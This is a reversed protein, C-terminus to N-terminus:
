IQERCNFEEQCNPCTVMKPALQDLQGQDEQSGPQFGPPIIGHEEALKTLMDALDQNSTQVENMLAELQAKDAEAMAGIPDYTLLIKNAEDENVDLILVPVTENKLLDTRLHGDILQISGDALEYAILAGAVGVEDLIAQMAKTQQKSHTRWNKPNAQIDVAPIHRLEKIRNKAM